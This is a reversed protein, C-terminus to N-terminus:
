SNGIPLRPAGRAILRVLRGPFGLLFESFRGGGAAIPDQPFELSPAFEAPGVEFLVESDGGGGGFAVEAHQVTPNFEGARSCSPM